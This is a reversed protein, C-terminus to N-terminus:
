FLEGLGPGLANGAPGRGFSRFFPFATLRISFFLQQENRFGLPTETYTLSAEMCDWRHTLQLNTSEFRGNFGNYRLLGAVRWSRGFPLDFQGNVQSFRGQAPDYRALVDLAFDNRGRL